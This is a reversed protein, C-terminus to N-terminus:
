VARMECVCNVCDCNVTETSAHAGNALRSDSDTWRFRPLSVVVPFLVVGFRSTTSPQRLPIAVLYLVLCSILVRPGVRRRGGTPAEASPPPPPPPPASSSSSFFFVFLRLHHRRLLLLHHFVAVFGHSTRRFTRRSGGTLIDDLDSLGSCTKSISGCFSSRNLPVSHFWFKLDFSGSMRWRCRTQTERERMLKTCEKKATNRTALKYVHVDHALVVFHTARSMRPYERHSARCTPAVDDLHRLATEAARAVAWM